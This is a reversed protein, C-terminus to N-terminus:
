GQRTGKRWRWHITVAGLILVTLFAAYIATGKDLGLARYVLIVADFLLVLVGGGIFMPVHRRLM